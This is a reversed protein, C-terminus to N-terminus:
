QPDELLMVREAAQQQGYFRDIAFSDRTEQSVFAAGTYPLLILAAYALILVALGLAVYKVKLKIGKVGLFGNSM